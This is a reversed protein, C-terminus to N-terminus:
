VKYIYVAASTRQNALGATCEKAHALIAAFGQKGRPQPCWPFFVVFSSLFRKRKHQTGGLFRRVSSARQEGLGSRFAGDGLQIAALFTLKYLRIFCHKLRSSVTVLEGYILARGCASSLGTRGMGFNLNNLFSSLGTRYTIQEKVNNSPLSIHVTTQYIIM